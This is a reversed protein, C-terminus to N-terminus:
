CGISTGTGMPSMRSLARRRSTRVSKTISAERLFTRWPARETRLADAIARIAVGDEPTRPCASVVRDLLKLTHLMPLLTSVCLDREGPWQPDLIRERIAKQLRAIRQDLSIIRAESQYARVCHSSHSEIQSLLVYEECIRCLVLLDSDCPVPAPQPPRQADCPITTAIISFVRSLAASASVVRQCIKLAPDPLDSGLFKRLSDISGSALEFVTGFPAGLLSDIIYEMFGIARTDLGVERRVEPIRAKCNELVMRQAKLFIYTRQYSSVDMKYSRVINELGAREEVLALKLTSAML